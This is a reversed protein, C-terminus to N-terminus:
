PQTAPPTDTSHQHTNRNLKSLDTTTHSHRPTHRHQHHLQHQQIHKKQLRPTHPHITLKHLPHAPHQSKHKIQSARLQLHQHIPLVNTEDHFHQTNTDHTCGTAMRLASNQVIQLKDINTESANPSWITSAYQLVPRSIAKYTKRTNEGVKDLHPGQTHENNQTSVRM